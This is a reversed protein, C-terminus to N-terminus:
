KTMSRLFADYDIGMNGYIQRAMDEFGGYYVNAIVLTYIIMLVVIGLGISGLILGTKARPTLAIEGGRSLLAFTIALSGCILSPYVLCSGAIAIIGLLLSINEM